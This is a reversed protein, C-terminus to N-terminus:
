ALQKLLRMQRKKRAEDESTKMKERMKKAEYENSNPTPQDVQAKRYEPLEGNSVRNALEAAPAAGAAAAPSVCSSPSFMVMDDLSWENSADAM